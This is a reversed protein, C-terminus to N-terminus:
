ARAGAISGLRDLQRLSPNPVQEFDLATDLLSESEMSAANSSSNLPRTAWEDCKLAPAPPARPRPWRERIDGSLRNAAGLPAGANRM